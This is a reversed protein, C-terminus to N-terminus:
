DCRVKLTNDLLKSLVGSIDSSNVQETSEYVVGDTDVFENESIQTLVPLEEQENNIVPNPLEEAKPESSDLPFDFMTMQPKLTPAPSVVTATPKATNSKPTAKVAVYETGDENYLKGEISDEEFFHVCWGFVTAQEVCAFRAGTAAQKKAEECAYNMFTTFDKKNVLTKGDKEIKVGNNIKTALIESANNQLYDKLIIQEQTTASLNIEIM